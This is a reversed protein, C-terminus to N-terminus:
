YHPVSHFRFVFFEVVPKLSPPQGIFGVTETRAPLMPTLLALRNRRIDDAQFPVPALLILM